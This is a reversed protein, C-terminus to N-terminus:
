DLRIRRWYEAPWIFGITGFVAASYLAGKQIAEGRTDSDYIFRGDARQYVGTVIWTEIVGFLAGRIGDVLLSRIRRPEGRSTWMARIAPKAIGLSGTSNTPRIWISDANEATVEGRLALRREMRSEMQRRSEGLSVRVRTGTPALRQAVLPSAGAILAAFILVLAPFVAGALRIVRGGRQRRGM